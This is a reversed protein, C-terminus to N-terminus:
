DKWRDSLRPDTLFAQDTLSELFAVILEEPSSISGDRMYPGTVAVNRLTPVRLLQWELKLV